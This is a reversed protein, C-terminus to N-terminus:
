AGVEEDLFKELKTLFANEGLPVLFVLSRDGAGSIGTYGRTIGARDTWPTQDTFGGVALDLDGTELGKVLSEEAAVTWEIRADISAAFGETLDVLPGSPGADDIKVLGPEPSIGVHMTSGTVSDLTGDPDSPITIGCASVSVTLVILTLLAAVPRLPRRWRIGRGGRFSIM